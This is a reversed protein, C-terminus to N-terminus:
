RLATCLTATSARGVGAGDVVGGLVTDTVMGPGEGDPVVRGVAPGVGDGPGVSGVSRGVVPPSPPSGPPDPPVSGCVPPSGPNYTPADRVKRTM